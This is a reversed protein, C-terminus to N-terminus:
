LEVWCEKESACSLLTLNTSARASDEPQEESDDSSQPAPTLKWRLPPRTRQVLASIAKVVPELLASKEEFTDRVEAQRCNKIYEGRVQGDENPAETATCEIKGILGGIPGYGRAAFIAASEAATFSYTEGIACARNKSLFRPSRYNITANLSNLDFNCSEKMAVTTGNVTIKRSQFDYMSELSVARTKLDYYSTGLRLPFFEYKDRRFTLTRIRDRTCPQQYDGNGIRVREHINFQNGHDGGSLASYYARGACSDGSRSNPSLLNEYRTTVSGMQTTVDLSHVPNEYNLDLVDILRWEDAHHAYAYNYELTDRVREEGRATTAFLLPLLAITYITKM